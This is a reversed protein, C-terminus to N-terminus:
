RAVLELSAIGFAIDLGQQSQLSIPQLGISRDFGGILANAGLGVGVTAEASVGGYRGELRGDPDGSSAAFVAWALRGQDTKGIDIGVRSMTGSYAERGAGDSSEFMCDMNKTSTVVMGTGSEIECQLVGIKVWSAAAAQPASAFMAAAAGAIVTLMTKRM